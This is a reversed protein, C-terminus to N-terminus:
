CRNLRMRFSPPLRSTLYAVFREPDWWSAQPSMLADVKQMMLSIKRSYEPSGEPLVDGRRVSDMQGETTTFVRFAGDVTPFTYNLFPRRRTYVGRGAQIKGQHMRVFASVGTEEVSWQYVREPSNAVLALMDPHGGRHMQSLAHTIFYLVLKVRLARDEPRELTADPTLIKLEALLGVLKLLLLPHIFMGRIYPLSVGGTFFAHLARTSAFRFDLTPEPHCGSEVRLADGRFELYASYEPERPVQFQVIAQTKQFRRAQKPRDVLVEKLLPLIACLVIRARLADEDFPQSM